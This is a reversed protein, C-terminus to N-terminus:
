QPQRSTTPTSLCSSCPLLKIENFVFLSLSIFRFDMVGSINIRKVNINAALKSAQAAGVGAGAGADTGAGTGAGVGAGTGVEVGAGTGVGVGAGLGSSLGDGFVIGSIGRVLADAIVEGGGSMSPILVWVSIYPVPASGLIM